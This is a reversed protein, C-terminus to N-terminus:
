GPRRAPCQGRHCEFGALFTGDPRLTVHRLTGCLLERHYGITVQMGVEFESADAVILGLGTLSEDHVEALLEVGPAMCIVAFETDPEKVFRTARRQEEVVAPPGLHPGPQARTPEPMAAEAPLRM